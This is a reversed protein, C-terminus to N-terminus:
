QIEKHYCLTMVPPVTPSKARYGEGRITALERNANMNANHGDDSVARRAFSM